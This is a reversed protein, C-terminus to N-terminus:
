RDTEHMSTRILAPTLADCPSTLASIAHSDVVIPGMQNAKKKISPISFFARLLPYITSKQMPDGGPKMPIYHVLGKGPNFFSHYM